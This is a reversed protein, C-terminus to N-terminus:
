LQKEINNLREIRAHIISRETSGLKPVKLAQQLLVKAQQYNGSLEYAKARTQYADAKNNSQAYAQALLIHLEADDSYQITKSKLFNRAEQPHKATMLMQSYQIFLPYYNPNKNLATKLIAIAKDYQQNAEAIQAAAMQFLVTNPYQKQLKTIISTAQTLQRNQCLALAYGYQLATTDNQKNSSLLNQFHRVAKTPSHFTIAQLRAHVLKYTNQTNIQKKTYQNARNKSEAIRTNTTPHTSLFTPVKNSYDYTLRQMREFFTPMAIPDFGSNYLTRMGIYDAENEKDRSFSIM